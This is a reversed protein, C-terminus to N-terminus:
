AARGAGRREPALPAAIEVRNRGSGKARYLALDAAEILAEPRAGAEYLAIGFSATVPISVGEHVFPEAAVAARLREGLLPAGGVEYGPVVILFEEGGYRGVGDHPRVVRMFRAAVEELVLDGAQHGHVDNVRKFHDVDAMILATAGRRRESEPLERSLLELIGRRNWAHTLPDRLAMARLAAQLEVIRRGAQLRLRLELPEYPKKLYDDAGAELGAIVDEKGSNGTLLLVYTYRGRPNARVRRCLEIGDLGPMMWDILALEPADEGSLVRWASLGDSATEVEYGWKQLLHSLQIRALPDDDALLVKM